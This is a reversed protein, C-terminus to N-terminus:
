LREGDIDNGFKANFTRAIGSLATLKDKDPFTLLRESYEEVLEYWAYYMALIAYGQVWEGITHAYKPSENGTSLVTPLLKRIDHGRWMYDSM